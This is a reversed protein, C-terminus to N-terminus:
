LFFKLASVAMGPYLKEDCKFLLVGAVVRWRVLMGICSTSLDHGEGGYDEGEVATIVSQRHCCSPDYWNQESDM